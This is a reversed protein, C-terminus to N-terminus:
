LGIEAPLTNLMFEQPKEIFIVRKGLSQAYGIEIMASAGVYGDPNCVILADCDNISDLHFRELEVPSAGEEGEFVVFEEGPNKPETFRPSLVFVDQQNLYNKVDLIQQLHKRFSGSITVHRFERRAVGDILNSNSPIITKINYKEFIAQAIASCARAGHMWRPDDPMFSEITKITINSFVEENKNRFDEIDIIFPHEDDKFLSNDSLPYSVLQMYQLEGGSYFAESITQKIEPLFEQIFHIVEQLQHGSKTDNLNPFKNLITSIGLEINYREVPIHNKLIVLETSGGGINVLMIERSTNYKGTLAHELYYNELDHPIINLFIGTKQYFEDIFRRKVSENMKRFFATAYTKISYSPYKEKLDALVQFLEEKHEKSIGANQDFGSKFHISRTYLLNPKSGSLEYVKVSSSGVDVLIKNKAKM